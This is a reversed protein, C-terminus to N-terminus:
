ERRKQFLGPNDLNPAGEVCYVALFKWRRFSITSYNHAKVSCNVSLLFFQQLLQLVFPKMTILNDSPISIVYIVSCLILFTNKYIFRFLSEGRIKQASVWCLFPIHAPPQQM